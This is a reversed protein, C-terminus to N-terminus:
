HHSPLESAGPAAASPPAAAASPASPVHLATVAAAPSLSEQTTISLTYAHPFLLLTDTSSTRISLQFKNHKGQMRASGMGIGMAIDVGIGNGVGNEINEIGEQGM